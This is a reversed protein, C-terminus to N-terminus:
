LEWEERAAERFALASPEPDLLREPNLNGGVTSPAADSFDPSHSFGSSLLPTGTEREETGAGSRPVQSGSDAVAYLFPSNRKGEGTRSVAGGLLLRLARVKVAKRGEVADDIEDETARGRTRLFEVIRADIQRREYEERTGAVQPTQSSDLDIVTEPLDTGYRQISSLFRANESRRLMLACDVSGFIASSGLIADGDAGGGKKAHHVLLVHAGTERAIALIPELARTVEAYDNLDRVRAFRALTDVIILAPRRERALADVRRVIEDPATGVLFDIPDDERAGMAAFYRRLEARKDEFALYVVAGQSVARGLFAVGQAVSVAFARALTSKGAKPKGALVSVGGQILLDEVLWRQQEEPEGLLARISVLDLGHGAADPDGRARHPERRPIADALANLSLADGLPRIEAAGVRAPRGNLYDRLDGKEGLADPLVLIRVPVRRARWWSAAKEAGALGAQDLDRVIVVEEANLDALFREHRDHGALSEAGVTSTIVHALGAEMAALLDSEGEVDFLRSIRERRAERLRSSAILSGSGVNRKKLKGDELQPRGESDVAWLKWGGALTPFGIWEEGWAAILKAGLLELGAANCLRCSRILSRTQEYTPDGLVQVVTNEGRKLHHPDRETEAFLDHMHLGLARLVNEISCGAFCNLLVRGDSGESLSLSPKRDTHAPCQWMGQSGARSGMENLANEVLDRPTM